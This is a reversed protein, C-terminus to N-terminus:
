TTFVTVKVMIEILKDINYASGSGCSIPIYTGRIVHFLSIFHISQFCSSYIFLM